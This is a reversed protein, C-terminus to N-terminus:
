RAHYLAVLLLALAAGQLAVRWAMWRESTRHAVEGSKSAMSSIGLVLTVVTAMAALGILLTLLKV